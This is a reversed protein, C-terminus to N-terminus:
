VKFKMWLFKTLWPLNYHHELEKTCWQVKRSFVNWNQIELLYIPFHMLYITFPLQLKASRYSPRDVSTTKPPLVFDQQHRTTTTTTTPCSPAGKAPRLSPFSTTNQRLVTAACLRTTTTVKPAEESPYSPPPRTTIAAAVPIPREKINRPTPRWEASYSLTLPLALHRKQQSTPTSFSLSIPQRSFAHGHSHPM